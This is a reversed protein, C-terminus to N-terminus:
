FLVNVHHLKNAIDMFMNSHHLLKQEKANYICKQM